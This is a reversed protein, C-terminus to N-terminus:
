QLKQVHKVAQLLEVQSGRILLTNIRVAPRKRRHVAKNARLLGATVQHQNFGTWPRLAEKGLLCLEYINNRLESPLSLFYVFM